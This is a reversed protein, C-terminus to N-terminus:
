AAADPTRGDRADGPKVAKFWFSLCALDENSVGRFERCLYPRVQDVVDLGCTEVARLTVLRLGGRNLLRRYEDLRWRNVTGKESYMLNWLATPWTLFDLENSRHLGHSKLDVKHVTTGGPKLASEMDSVIAPLDNVHELVARSFVLDCTERFGSLGKRTVVYEICRPDFGSRPDGWVRFCDAARERREAPVLDVLQAIVDANFGSMSVLPFRDVCYVKRAGWAHFLLAVGPIDGPGYEMVVSGEIRGDGGLVDVYEDFCRAFYEATERAGKPQKGRGTENTFRCYSVPAVRAYQNTLFAKFFRIADAKKDLSFM